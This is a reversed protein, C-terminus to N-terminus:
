AGVMYMSVTTSSVRRFLLLASENTAVTQGTDVVTVSDGGAFTLTQSGDNIYWVTLCQNDRRLAVGGSGAIINAATDTTVTGGGTVSTHVVIGAVIQAITLTNNQADVDTATLVEKVRSSPGFSLGDYQPFDGDRQGGRFRMGDLNPLDNM